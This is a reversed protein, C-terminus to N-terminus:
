ISEQMDIIDLYFEPGSEMFNSKLEGAINIRKPEGINKYIPATGRSWMKVELENQVLTLMLNDPNKSTPKAEKVICNNITLVPYKFDTQNYAFEHIDMFVDNTFLDVLKIEGDVYLVDDVEEEIDLEDILKELKSNLSEKLTDIKSEDIVIGCSEKHGGFSIVNGKDVEDKFLEILNIGKIGRVSGTLGKPTESVVISIKDYKNLMRGAIIGAIGAPCNAKYICVLDDDFNVESVEELIKDTTEKRKDNVEEIEEIIKLARNYNKENMLNAALHIIDMRGCSNLRPGISWSLDRYTVYDIELFDKYAKLWVPCEDSNILALGYRIFILNESNLPMMDTLTAIALYPMYKEADHCGYHIQLLQGIKFAVGAGCLHKFTDDQEVFKNHPDCIICNPVETKSEHHDTVFVNIGNETLYNIQEVQAVGNDVTVVLIDRDNDIREKIVRDAFSKSLGYGNKRSPYHVKIKNNLKKHILVDRIMNSLIYGANLGDSDYDANIYITDGIDIHHAIGRAIVEANTLDKPNTLGEDIDNFINKVKLDNRRRNLYINAHLQNINLLEAIESADPTKNIWQM